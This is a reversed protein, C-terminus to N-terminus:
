KRAEVNAANNYLDSALFKPISDTEMLKYIHNLIEDFTMSIKALNSYSKDSSSAKPTDSEPTIPEIPHTPQDFGLSTPEADEKLQQAEHQTEDPTKLFVSHAYEAVTSNPHIM